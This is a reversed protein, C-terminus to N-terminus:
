IKIYFGFKYAFNNHPESFQYPGYRYYIGVGWTLYGFKLLNNIEFGSEYYGKRYDKLNYKAISKSSLEGVGISQSIVFAPRTKYNEPFLWQSFDHRIHIATYNASAFENFRMTAFSFPANLTFTGGFGGYGNFLEMIPSNQSMVGGRVMITTIGFKSYPLHFKGKLEVKTYKYDGYLATFGHIITLFYDARPITVETLHGDEMQLKIGPSYRMQLGTRTLSTPDFSHTVLFDTNSNAKNESMDGFFYLNMENFPRFELGATFRKQQFMNDILLLRYSEPNLLSPIQLFESGGFEMNLDTYGLHIRYDSLGTPFIDFWEGHRFAGDKMSFSFYGGLTFYKSLLRNTEGGLGLKLGEYVNYGIVRNYDLHFYGMSIKGEAFMRVMQAQKKKNFALIISDAKIKMGPDSQNVPIYLYNVNNEASRKASDAGLPIPSPILQNQAGQISISDESMTSRQCLQGATSVVPNHMLFFLGIVILKKMM